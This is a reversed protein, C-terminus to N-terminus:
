SPMSIERAVHVELSVGGVIRKTATHRQVFHLKFSQGPKARAPVGVRLGVEVQTGPEVDVPLRVPRGAAFPGEWSDPFRRAIREPTKSTLIGRGPPVASIFGGCELPQQHLRMPVEVTFRKVKVGAARFLERSRAILSINLEAAGRPQLVELTFRPRRERRWNSIVIPLIMFTNPLLDVVTLNKQALSNHEWVHRSAVPQDGRALVAALLCTHTGGPPVLARPWRAKVIRTAGPALDFAAVAATCPLFDAPYVFETGAFGRAHFSVVFHTATGAGSANRVRAHFWNDQGHEPEQHATGADDANRIWLDPSDWFAGGWADAGTHAPDDKLWLDPAPSPNALGYVFRHFAEVVRPAGSRTLLFEEIMQTSVPNGRYQSYLSGMLANLDSVTLLSAM